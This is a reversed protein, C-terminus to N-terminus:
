QTAHGIRGFENIGVKHEVGEPMVSRRRITRHGAASCM